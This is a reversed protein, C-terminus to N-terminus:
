LLVAITHGVRGYGGNVVWGPGDGGVPLEDVGQLEHRPAATGALAAIAGNLRILVAGAVMSLLVASIAIQGLRADVVQADLAIAVLALGFEGGM